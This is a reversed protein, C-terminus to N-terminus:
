RGSLFKPNSIALRARTTAELHAVLRARRAPDDFRGARVDAALRRELGALAREVDDLTEAAPADEGYLAAIRGLADRLPRDGAALTRQAMGVANAIMLADVRREPPLLALLEELLLRRAEALLAPADAIDGPFGAM